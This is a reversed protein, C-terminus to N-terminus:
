STEEIEDKVPFVTAKQVKRIAVGDLCNTLNSQHKRLHIERAGFPAISCSDLFIDLTFLIDTANIM